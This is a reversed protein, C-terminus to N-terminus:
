FLEVIPKSPKATIKMFFVNTFRGNRLPTLSHGVLGVIKIIVSNDDDVNLLADPLYSFRDKM